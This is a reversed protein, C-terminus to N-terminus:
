SRVKADPMYVIVSGPISSSISVSCSQTQTPYTYITEGQLKIAMTM